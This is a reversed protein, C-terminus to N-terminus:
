SWDDHRHVDTRRRSPNKVLLFVWLSSVSVPVVGPTRAIADAAPGASRNRRSPFGDCRYQEPRRKGRARHFVAGGQGGRDASAAGTGRGSIGCGSWMSRPPTCPSRPPWSLPVRCAWCSRSRATSRAPTRLSHEVLVGGVYQLLTWGVAGVIAGPVMDRWPIQKPTLLRFAVVFLGINVVLSAVVAGVVALAGPHGITVLGALVTSALLFLGLVLMMLGPGGSDPGSTRATSARSTGSKRRPTSRRRCHARRAGCCSCSGWSWASCAAARCVMFTPALKTGVVPFQSFASNEVRRVFSHEGGGFFGLITVLLLLLPFLSLFGYFTLCHPCRVAGTTASSRSCASRSPSRVSARNRRDAKRALREVLNMLLGSAGATRHGARLDIGAM